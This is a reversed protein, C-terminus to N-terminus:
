RGVTEPASELHFCCLVSVDMVYIVFTILLFDIYEMVSMLVTYSISFHLCDLLYLHSLGTVLPLLWGLCLTCYLVVHRKPVEYM